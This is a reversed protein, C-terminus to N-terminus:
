PRERLTTFPPTARQHARRPLAADTVAGLTPRWGREGVRGEPRPKARSARADQAEGRESM